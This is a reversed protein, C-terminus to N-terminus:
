LNGDVNRKFINKTRHPTFFTMSKLLNRKESSLPFSPYVIIETRCEVPHGM